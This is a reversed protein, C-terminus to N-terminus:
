LVTRTGGPRRAYVDFREMDDSPVTMVQGVEDDVVKRPQPKLANHEAATSYKGACIRKWVENLDDQSM